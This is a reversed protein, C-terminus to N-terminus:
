NVKIRTALLFYFVGDNPRCSIIVSKTQENFLCADIGQIEYLYADTRATHFIFYGTYGNPVM